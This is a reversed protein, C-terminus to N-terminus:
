VKHNSQTSWFKWVSGSISWKWLSNLFWTQHCAFVKRLSFGFLRLIKSEKCFFVVAWKGHKKNWINKGTALVLFVFFYQPKWPLAEFDKLRQSPTQSGLIQPPGKPHFVRFTTTRWRTVQYKSQPAPQVGHNTVKRKLFQYAQGQLHTNSKLEWLIWPCM